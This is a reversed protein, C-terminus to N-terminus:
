RRVRADRGHVPDDADNGREVPLLDDVGVHLNAVEVAAELLHRLRDVVVADNRIGVPEVVDRREDVVHAVAHGDLLEEAQRDRLAAVVDPHDHRLDGPDRVVEGAHAGTGHLQSRKRDKEVHDLGAFVQPLEDLHHGPRAQGNGITADASHLAIQGIPKGSCHAFANCSVRFTRFSASPSSVRLRMKTSRM